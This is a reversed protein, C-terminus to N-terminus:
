GVLIKRIASAYGVEFLTRNGKKIEGHTGESWGEEDLFDKSIAKELAARESDSLQAKVELIPISGSEKTITAGLPRNNIIIQTQSKLLNVQARLMDRESIASQMLSRIAPDEIRMLYEHSALPKAEKPAKVSSPGSYAAWAAILAVYDASASNYLVRAKFLEQKECLRGIAPLSFDRLSESQDQYQQRCIAHLKQLNSLKNSRCGKDILAELVVDPHIITKKM